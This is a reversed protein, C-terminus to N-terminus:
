VILNFTPILSLSVVRRALSIYAWARSPQGRSEDFAARCRDPGRLRERM